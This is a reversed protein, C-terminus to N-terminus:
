ENGRSISHTHTDHKKNIRKTLNKLERDMVTSVSDLMIRVWSNQDNLLEEYEPLNQLKADVMCQVLVKSKLSM